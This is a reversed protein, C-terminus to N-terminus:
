EGDAPDLTLGERELRQRIDPTIAGDWKRKCRITPLRSRTHQKKIRIETDPGAVRMADALADEVMQLLNHQALLKVIPFSKDM